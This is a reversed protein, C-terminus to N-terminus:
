RSGGTLRNESTITGSEHHERASNKRRRRRGYGTFISRDLPFIDPDLMSDYIHWVAMLVFILMAENTHVAKSAPIFQGPLYKTAYVPFWLIFGTIMMQIGGLLVLWYIFKEKYTYRGCSAPQDALGLYYRVDHLADYVDKLTILMSPDRQFFVIGTFNVLIHQAALLSFMLGAVHHLLRVSDVGGLAIILSQSIGLSYFKQSLGTVALIVFLAILALHEVIRYGSFRKVYEEHQPLSRKMM